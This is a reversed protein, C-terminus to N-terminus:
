KTYPGNTKEVAVCSNRDPRARSSLPRKDLISMAEPLGSTLRKMSKCAKGPSPRTTTEEGKKGMFQGRAIGVGLRFDDLRDVADGDLVEEMKDFDQAVAAVLHDGDLKVVAAAFGQNKSTRVHDACRFFDEGVVADAALARRVGQGDPVRFFSGASPSGVPDCRLM